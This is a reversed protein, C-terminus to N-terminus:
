TNNHNCEYWKFLSKEISMENLTMKGITMERVTIEDVIIQGSTMKNTPMKSWFTPMKQNQLYIYKLNFSLIKDLLKNLWKAVWCVSLLVPELDVWEEGVKVVQDYPELNSDQCGDGRYKLIWQIM